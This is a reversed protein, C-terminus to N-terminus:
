LPLPPTHTSIDTSCFRLPFMKYHSVTVFSVDLFLLIIGRKPQYCAASCGENQLGESSLKKIPIISWEQFNKCHSDSLWSKSAFRRYGAKGTAREKQIRSFLPHSKRHSIPSTLGASCERGSEREGKRGGERGRRKGGRGVRELLIHSFQFASVPGPRKKEMESAAPHSVPSHNWWQLSPLHM